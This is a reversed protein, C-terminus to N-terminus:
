ATANVILAFGLAILFCSLIRLYKDIKRVQRSPIIPCIVEQRVFNRDLQNLEKTYFDIETITYNQKLLNELHFLDFLGKNSYFEDRIFSLQQNVTNELNMGAMSSSLMKNFLKTFTNESDNNKM